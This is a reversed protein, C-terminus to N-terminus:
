APVGLTSGLAHRDREHVPDLRLVSWMLFLSGGAPFPVVAM